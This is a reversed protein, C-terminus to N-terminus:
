RWRIEMARANATLRFKHNTIFANGSQIHGNLGLDDVKQLLQTLFLVQGVHEDRVVQGDNTINGITNADHIKSIDNLKRIRFRYKFIRSMRVGNSKERRDRCRINFTQAFLPDNQFAIDGTRDSRRMTTFEMRTAEHSTLFAAANSWRQSFDLGIM